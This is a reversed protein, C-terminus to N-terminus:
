EITETYVYAGLDVPATRRNGYRDVAAESATLSADGVGIAESEPKLRYDFYYDERVTYYKPDAGWICNIFNDDDSGESKLLCSRLYVSTGTLDGHSLDSGNGYIICNSFEARLYPVGSEDDTAESHHAFQLAAGNIASFLYYNAFTCHNFVHEGGQLYVLGNSAEAFECGYAKVQAHVANLVVDASNRLRCNIMTLDPQKEVEDQSGICVGLVTNKICTNTMRNGSSTSTFFVGLWQSAMLDFSIDTVVNGTRDGALTIENDTEGNAVLTGRVALYSGDHFCLQAGPDITLTAGPSVVLSDYIQYPKGATFYTDEDLVKGYLRVVDQGTASVVVSRTVGNATFDLSATVDTPLDVGNAPLTVEVFVFISDKGRIEVDSFERGSMGDVNLRFYQANEGSLSINSINLMKSNRNYVVFRHTTSGEETFITGIDLTDVSFTMVESPSTTFDDEICSTLCFNVAVVIAAIVYLLKKM